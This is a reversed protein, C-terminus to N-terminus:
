ATSFEQFIIKASEIDRNIQESLAEPGSFTREERIHKLFHLELTREYLDGSFNILHAEITPAAQDFTPRDGINVVAPHFQESGERELKGIQAFCAYVGKPPYLEHHPALNATPFGILRGRGDGPVVTGLISVQRGLMGAARQLEGLSVAERIATSSVARDNVRLAEVEVLEIGLGAALPRLSELNGGRGHGFKSDFGLVLGKLGLRPILHERLFNEASLDRLQQNFSLVLVLEVDLLEFLRLRHELSTVTSPAQGRLVKKPHGSFTIVCSKLNRTKALNVVQEIVSQHGKHVGDFVGITAIVGCSQLAEIKASTVALADLGDIVLVNKFNKKSTSLRVM